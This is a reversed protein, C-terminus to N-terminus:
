GVGLYSERVSPNSALDAASGQLAIQGTQMVYARHAIKLAHWANQEVLLLSKGMRNLSTVLEFVADVLVPALGMTPEDLLVLAADQMLARGIALMQQEGGSLTGGRQRRREGLRPLLGFVREKRERLIRKDRELYGGIDLNEEVTLQMFIRRGEPVHGIGRAAIQHPKLRRLSQGRFLVEGSRPRLLGSIVRLTTSKGAGNAGIMAVIEGPAVHLAVDRLAHIHGYSAQIGRLELLPATAPGTSAAADSM